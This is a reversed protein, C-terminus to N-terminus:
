LLILVPSGHNKMWLKGLVSLFYLLIILFQNLKKCTYATFIHVQRQKLMLDNQMDSASKLGNPKKM